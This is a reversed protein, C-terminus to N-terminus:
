GKRMYSQRSQLAKGAVDAVDAVDVDQPLTDELLSMAAQVADDVM